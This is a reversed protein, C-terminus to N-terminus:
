GETPVVAVLTDHVRARRQDPGTPTVVRIITGVNRRDSSFDLRGAAAERCCMGIALRTEGGFGKDVNWWVGKVLHAVFQIAVRRAEHELRQRQWVAKGECVQEGRLLFSPPLNGQFLALHM